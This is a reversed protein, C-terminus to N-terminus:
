ALRDAPKQRRAANVIPRNGEFHLKISRAIARALDVPVANGIQRALGASNVAKGPEVFRFKNPFSQLLAAERVSIARDQSPHGFRGNGIGLCQTTIVPSPEDWNMRGYVSRFSEGGERRHCDLMLEPSWDKWGGGEPTARLRALNRDTLKRAVHLSDSTDTEGANIPPLKGIAERVTKPQRAHTPAVIDIKGRRSGFLVLRKRYQPVGYAEARVTHVSVAYGATELREVFRGFVPHLTVRQVNEMSIADPRVEEVLRAFNELLQWRLDHGDDEGQRYRGTYISFPQCPACGVLVRPVKRSYLKAIRKAPLAAVDSAHFPAGINEEYPYRCSADLDFGALVDFGEKKFGYSLGGIGCFLDVVEVSM